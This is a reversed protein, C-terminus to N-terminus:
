SIIKIKGEMLLQQYKKYDTTRLNKVDEATMGSVPATKDGGTSKELGKRTPSLFGNEVLFAKASTKLSMGKNEPNSRFQEFEEWKDKLVPYSIFVDKKTLEEKVESLESKLNNIQGKLLKGEESFVDTDESFVSTKLTENENELLKNKEEALRRREREEQLSKLLLNPDTKEGAQPTSAIDEEIAEEKIEGESPQQNTLDDNVVDKNEMLKVAKSAM